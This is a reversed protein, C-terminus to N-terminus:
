SNAVKEVYNQQCILGAISRQLREVEESDNSSQLRSRLEHVKKLQRNPVVVKGDRVVIGTVEGVGRSFYREKHYRLGRSHIMRRVSWILWAPVCEGSLTVDDMYVTVKCGARAAVEAIALWMDQFAYYSLIPSVTSGTALHGDVTLLEALIAAADPSCKMVSHFFWYVRHRPTSPFYESIDLTRIERAGAHVYANKVYCRGKVPCFLFDPPEIRSLLARVRNHIPRLAGRPEQIRRMKIKGNRVMEVQRDTFRRPATLIEQLASENLGFIAALRKRKSIKYLTSQHLPHSRSM